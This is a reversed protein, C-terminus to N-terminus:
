QRVAVLTDCRVEWTRRPPTISYEDVLPFWGHGLGLDELDDGLRSSRVVEGLNLLELDETLDAVISKLTPLDGFCLVSAPGVDESSRCSPCM